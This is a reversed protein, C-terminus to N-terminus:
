QPTYDETINQERHHLIVSIGFKQVLHRAMSDASYVSRHQGGTCGFAVTLHTFGREIYRQVANDVLATCNNLFHLIEGDYELFEIVPLDRGTLSKYRDYRGPNHIARCDFVFGGGNGSNDVPIGKKYSFSSVEVTLSPNHHPKGSATPDNDFRVSLQRSLQSLYPLTDTFHELAAKLSQLAQPIYTFFRQKKEILGRFGYAGLVQLMRFIVILPIEQRITDRDYGTSQCLRDIYYDLLRDRLQPTFGARAQWLFSVIDYPAPGRRSGQFDIIWPEQDKIMINRSQFDRHILLIHNSEEISRAIYEFETELRPEDIDVGITKLFCYKFYNLDWMVSKGSMRAVPYCIGPDVEKNGAIQMMILQDISKRCLQLVNDDFGNSKILDYLSTDGLDDLLYLMRDSSTAHIRPVNVGNLALTKGISLFATNEALNTGIVGVLPLVGEMHFYRRASASGTIPVLCQPGSNAVSLYLQELEKIQSDNITTTNLSNTKMM